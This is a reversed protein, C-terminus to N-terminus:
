LKELVEKAIIKRAEALTYLEKHHRMRRALFHGQHSKIYIRPQKVMKVSWGYEYTKISLNGYFYGTELKEGLFKEKVPNIPPHKHKTIKNLTPIRGKTSRKM